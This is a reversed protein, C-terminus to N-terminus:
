CIAEPTGTLDSVFETTHGQSALTTVMRTRTPDTELIPLKIQMELAIVEGRRSYDAGDDQTLWQYSGFTASTKVVSWCAAVVAHMLAKVCEENEHWCRVELNLSDTRIQRLSQGNSLRGGVNETPEITGSVPIWVVRPWDSNAKLAKRGIAYKVGVLESHAHIDDIVAEITAKNEAVTM